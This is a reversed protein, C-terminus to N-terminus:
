PTATPDTVDEVQFDDIWLTGQGNFNITYLLCQSTGPINAFLDYKKWDATDADPAPNLHEDIQVDGAKTDSDIIQIQPQSTLNEAKLWVSLHLRHGALLEAHRNYRGLTWHSNNRAYNCVIKLTPKGNRPTAPDLDASYAPAFLSWYNLNQDDTTPVDDGVAEIRADDLWLKGSSNLAMGVNLGTTEIPIDAVVQLKKWDNTGVLPHDADAQIPEWFTDAFAVLKGTHDRAQLFIGGKNTVKESKVFASFRVRQGLYPTPDLHIGANGRQANIINTALLLAPRNNHKVDSDINCTFDDRGCHFSDNPIATSATPATAPEANGTAPQATTTSALWSAMALAFVVIATLIPSRRM